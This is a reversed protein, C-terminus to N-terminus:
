PACRCASRRPSGCDHRPPLVRPLAPWRATRRTRGAAGLGSRFAECEASVRVVQRRATISYRRSRDLASAITLLCTPLRVSAAGYRMRHLPPAEAGQSSDSHELASEPNGCGIRRRLPPPRHISVRDPPCRSRACSPVRAREGVPSAASSSSDRRHQGVDDFPHVRGLRTSRM